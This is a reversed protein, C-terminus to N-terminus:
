HGQTGLGSEERVWPNLDFVSEIVVTYKVASNDKNQAIVKYSGVRDPNVAYSYSRGSEGPALKDATSSECQAEAISSGCVLAAMQAGLPNGDPDKTFNLWITTMAPYPLEFPHERSKDVVGTTPPIAGALYQDKSEVRQVGDPVTETVQIRLFGASTGGKVDRAEVVVYYVAPSPFTFTQVAGTDDIQGDFDSNRPEPGDGGGHFGPDGIVREVIEDVPGSSAPQSSCSVCAAESGADSSTAPPTSNNAYQQFGLNELDNQTPDIPANFDWRFSVPDGDPDTTPSADFQVPQDPTVWRRDALLRLTPLQNQGSGVAVDRVANLTGGDGGTVTLQVKYVGNPYEYSHEVRAGQASSHGDGFDWEYKKAGETAQFAYTTKNADKPNAQFEADLTSEGLICGSFAVIVLFVPVFFPKM